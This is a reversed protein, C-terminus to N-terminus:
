GRIASEIFMCVPEVLRPLKANGGELLAAVTMANVGGVIATRRLVDVTTGLVARAFSDNVRERCILARSGAGLVDVIFVRAGVPDKALVDFYTTIQARRRIPGDRHERVDVMAAVLLASLAEYATLFCEEKDQFHEYFTKRSVGAITIVDAVSAEAYGCKGVAETVAELMRWRQSERVTQRPLGHRKPLVRVVDALHVSSKRRATL